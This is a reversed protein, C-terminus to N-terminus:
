PRIVPPLMLRAGPAPSTGLGGPRGAPAAGVVTGGANGGTEPPYRGGIIARCASDQGRQPPGSGGHALRRGVSHGYQRAVTMARGSMTSAARKTAAKAPAKVPIMEGCTKCKITKGILSEVVNLTADCGPCTIGFAM